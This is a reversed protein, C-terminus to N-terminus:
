CCSLEVVNSSCGGFVEYAEAMIEPIGLAITENDM